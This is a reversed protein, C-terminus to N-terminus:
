EMMKDFPIEFKSKKVFVSFLRFLNFNVCGEVPLQLRENISKKIEDSKEDNIKEHSM